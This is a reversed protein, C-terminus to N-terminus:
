VLQRQTVFPTPTIVDVHCGWVSRTSVTDKEEDDLIGYMEEFLENKHIRKRKQRTAKRSIGRSM